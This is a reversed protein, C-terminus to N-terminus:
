FGLSSLAEEAAASNKNYLVAKEFENRADALKGQAAYSKGRLIYLETFAPNKNNLISDSLSFVRAYNGVAFYAEIPEIQYWLTRMPLAQEVREFERIAGEYDKLYFRAVAANFGATIDNQDIELEWGATRLANEWSASEDAEKDLIQKLLKQQEPRALVLYAYNFPKWLELFADYSYRINKGQFSDDQILEKTAEDYGKVVRYHAYDKGSELLTRIM